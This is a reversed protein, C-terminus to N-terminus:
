QESVLLWIAGNVGATVAFFLESADVDFCSFLAGASLNTSASGSGWFGTVPDRVWPTVSFPGVATSGAPIKLM